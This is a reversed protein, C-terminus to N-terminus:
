KLGSETFHSLPDLFEFGLRLLFLSGPAFGENLLYSEPSAPGFM